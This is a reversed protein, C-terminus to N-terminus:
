RSSECLLQLVQNQTADFHSWLDRQLLHLSHVDNCDCALVVSQLLIFVDSRIFAHTPVIMSVGSSDSPDYSGVAYKEMIQAYEPKTALQTPQMYLLLLLRTIEAWGVFDFYPGRRYDKKGTSEATLAEFWGEAKDTDLCKDMALEIIETLTVIAADFDGVEIKCETASRLSALAVLPTSAVQYGAAKEYFQMAEHPRNLMRMANALETYLSAALPIRRLSLYTEIALLYCHVAEVAYQEFSPYNMEAYDMEAEMYLQGAKAAKDAEGLGNGLAQECRAVALACFAAYPTNGERLILNQLESFQEIAEGYNPKRMLRKKLKASIAKYSAMFDVNSAM